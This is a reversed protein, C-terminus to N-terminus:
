YSLPMAEKLVWCATLWEVTRDLILCFADNSIGGITDLTFNFIDNSIVGIKDLVFSSANHLYIFEEWSRPSSVTRGRRRAPPVALGDRRTKRVAEGSDSRILYNLPSTM